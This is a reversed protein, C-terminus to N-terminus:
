DNSATLSEITLPEIHIVEISTIERELQPVEIALVAIPETEIPDIASVDNPPLPAPSSRQRAVAVTATRREVAPQPRGVPLPATVVAPPAVLSPADAPSEVAPAPARNMVAIAVAGCLVATAGAMAWVFRRPAPTAPERVGAMVARTLARSPERAAIQAAAHDILRDIEQDNM